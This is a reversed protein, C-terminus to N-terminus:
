CVSCGSCGKVVNNFAVMVAEFSKGFYYILVVLALSAYLGMVLGDSAVTFHRLWSKILWSLSLACKLSGARLWYLWRRSM